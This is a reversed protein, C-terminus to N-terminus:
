VDQLIHAHWKRWKHIAVLYKNVKASTLSVIMLKLDWLFGTYITSSAFPQDKLKEWIIGLSISLDNIDQINYTFCKNHESRPSRDSLDQLPKSCDESLEELKRMKSCTNGYWLRRGLQQMGEKAFTQNWKKRKENYKVLYERLIRFFIHDDVWKDLLGMGNNQFIKAGADAVHGYIGV